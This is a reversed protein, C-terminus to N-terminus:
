PKPYSTIVRYGLESENKGLVVTAKKVHRVRGKKPVYIGIERDMTINRAFTGKINSKLWADIEKKYKGIFKAQTLNAISNDYFSSAEDLGERRIRDRLWQESKGIHKKDTHGGEEDHGQVNRRRSELIFDRADTQQRTQGGTHSPTKTGSETDTGQTGTEVPPPAHGTNRTGGQEGNPNPFTEVQNEPENTTVIKSLEQEAAAWLSDWDRAIQFATYSLLGFAIAEGVPFITDAASLGLATVAVAGFRQAVVKGFTQWIAKSGLTTGYSALIATPIGSQFVGNLQAEQEASLQEPKQKKNKGGQKNKKQASLHKKINRAANKALIEANRTATGPKYHRQDPPITERKRRRGPPPNENLGESGGTFQFDSQNNKKKEYEGDFDRENGM